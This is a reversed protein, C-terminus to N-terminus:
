GPVRSIQSWKRTANTFTLRMYWGAPILFTFPMVIGTAGAAPVRPCATADGFPYQPSSMNSNASLEVLVTAAAGATPDFQAAICYLVPTGATNQYATGSAPSTSPGTNLSNPRASVSYSGIPPYNAKSAVNTEHDPVGFDNDSVNGTYELSRQASTPPTTGSIAPSPSAVWTQWRGFKLFNLKNGQSGSNNLHVAHATGALFLNGYLDDLQCNGYNCASSHQVFQLLGGGYGRLGRLNGLLSNVLRFAYHNGDHGYVKVGRWTQGMPGHDSYSGKVPPLCNVGHGTNAFRHAGDFRIAFDLLDVTEGCTTIQIADAGAATQVIAGGELYPDVVPFNMANVTDAPGHHENVGSGLLRLPGDIVLPADVSWQEYGLSLPRGASIASQIADNIATELAGASMSPNLGFDGRLSLAETSGVSIDTRVGGVRRALQGTERNAEVADWREEAGVVDETVLSNARLVDLERPDTTTYSGGTFTITRRIDPIYVQLPPDTVETTFTSM